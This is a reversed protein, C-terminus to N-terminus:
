GLRESPPPVVPPADFEGRAEEDDLYPLMVLYLFEPVVKEPLPFRRGVVWGLQSFIGGVLAVATGRSPASATPNGTRGRDILDIFYRVAEDSQARAREGAFRAELLVFKTNREDHNLARLVAYGAARVQDRWQEYGAMAAEVRAIGWDRILRQTACFCGELDTFRRELVDGAVEARELLMATTVGRYGWEYCLDVLAVCLREEEGGSRRAAAIPDRTPPPPPPISREAAAREPGLYPLVVGYMMEPVVDGEPAVEGGTGIASYIQAFVGGGISEATIRTLSSPAGPEQRGEDILDVLAEVEAGFLLQAREGAGRVEVAAFHAIRQDADLFRYLAYATARVRDAWASLGLRATAAQWRFRDLEARYLVYFCRELDGYTREFRARDVHARACLLDPSLTSFGVEYCLDILALRIRNREAPAMENV